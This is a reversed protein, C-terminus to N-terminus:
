DAKKPPAKAKVAEAYGSTILWDAQDSEVSAEDAGETDVGLAAFASPYLVRVKVKAM